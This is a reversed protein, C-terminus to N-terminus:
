RISMLDRKVSLIIDEHSHINRIYIYVKIM